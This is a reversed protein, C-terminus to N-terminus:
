LLFSLCSTSQMDDCKDKYCARQSLNRWVLSRRSTYQMMDSVFEVRIVASLIVNQLIFLPYLQYDKNGPTCLDQVGPWRRSYIKHLVGFIQSDGTLFKNGTVRRVIVLVEFRNRSKESVKCGQNNGNEYFFIYDKAPINWSITHFSLTFKGRDLGHPMYPSWFYLAM